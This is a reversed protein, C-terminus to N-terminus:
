HSFAVGITYCDEKETELMYYHIESKAFITTALYKMIKKADRKRNGKSGFRNFERKNRDYVKLLLEKDTFPEEVVYIETTLFTRKAM